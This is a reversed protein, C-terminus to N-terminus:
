PVRTTSPARSPSPATEPLREVSVPILGRRLPALERFARRSLDIIRRRYRRAPGRDTIRVIVSKGTERSTVKVLTGFPVDWMAAEYADPSVRNGSATRQNLREGGGYWSALGMLGGPAALRALPDAGAAPLAAWVPSMGLAAVLGLVGLRQFHAPRPRM